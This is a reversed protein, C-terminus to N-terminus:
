VHPSICVTLALRGLRTVVYSDGWTRFVYEPDEPDPELYEYPVTTLLGRAELGDHVARESPDNVYHEEGHEGETRLAKTLADREKVTLGRM